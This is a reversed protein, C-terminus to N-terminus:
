GCTAKFLFNNWEQCQTAGGLLVVVHLVSYMNENHQQEVCTELSSPHLLLDSVGQPHINSLLVECAAEQKFTSVTLLM